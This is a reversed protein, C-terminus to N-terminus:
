AKEGYIMTFFGKTTNVTHVIGTVKFTGNLPKAPMQSVNVADALTVAPAGLVKIVGRQKQTYTAWIGKAIEAAAKQTRATPDFLRAVIGTTKGAQGKVEKKTLWSSAESGQGGSAPSEGYIEVGTVSLTQEDLDFVLINKAYKFEHTTTPNYKAFVVQDKPNAYFDFGCQRALTQLHQYATQNDGLAYVPFQIGSEVKDSKLKLKVIADNVIDGANSKEYLLNFRAATLSAFASDAHLTVRDISWDVASVSGTFILKVDNGYGLEVAVSDNLAITLDGPSGLIIRCTNVPVDLAAKVQLDILRTQDGSQYTTTGIKLRHSVQLM